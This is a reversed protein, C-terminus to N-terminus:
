VLCFLMRSKGLSKINLSHTFKVSKQNKNTVLDVKYGSNILGESLNLNTNEVGGFDFNPIFNLIRHNDM